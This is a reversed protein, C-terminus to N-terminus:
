VSIKGWLGMLKDTRGVNELGCMYVGSM